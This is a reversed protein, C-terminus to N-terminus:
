RSYKEKDPIWSEILDRHKDMWQRVARTETGRTEEIGRM